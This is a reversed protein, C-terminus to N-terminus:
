TGGPVAFAAEIRALLQQEAASVRHMGLFGGAAEAVSRALDLVQRKLIELQAPTLQRRLTEVYGTWAALLSAAPRARLWSELLQYAPHDQEIGRGTAAQLIAERERPQVDGDAWATLVLPVLSLASVTQGTLGLEILVDLVGEDQMGSATRLAQRASERSLKDRLAELRAADQSRFFEEELARGRERLTDREQM